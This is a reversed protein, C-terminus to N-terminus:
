EAPRSITAPSVNYAAGSRPLRKIVRDRRKIAKAGSIRLSGEAHAGDERGAVCLKKAKDGASAAKAGVSGTEVTTAPAAM